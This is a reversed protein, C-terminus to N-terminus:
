GRFPLKEGAEVATELTNEPPPYPCNYRPSYACSPNYAENFDLIYQAAESREELLPVDLYRGSGYTEKGNGADRFPVFLYNNDPDEPAMRYATLAYEAGDLNFFFTGYVDFDRLDGISTPLQVRRGTGPVTRDLTARVRLRPDPAYYQPGEFGEPIPAGRWNFSNLYYDRAEERAKELAGRWTDSDFTGDM